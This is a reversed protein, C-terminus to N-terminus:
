KRIEFSFPMFIWQRVRRGEHMAPRFSTALVAQRAALEFLPDPTPFGQQVVTKISEREVRGSTDVIFRLLVKGQVGSDRLPLPYEPWQARQVLVPVDVQHEFYAGAGVPVEISADAAAVAAISPTRPRPDRSPAPGACAALSVATLIVRCGATM